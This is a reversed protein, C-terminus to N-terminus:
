ALDRAWSADIPDAQIGPPLDHWALALSAIIALTLGIALAL